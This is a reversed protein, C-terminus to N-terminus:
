TPREEDPPTFADDPYTCSRRLHRRVADVLASSARNERAADRLYTFARQTSVAAGARALNEAATRALDVIERAQEPDGMLNEIVDLVALAADASM